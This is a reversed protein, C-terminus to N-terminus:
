GLRAELLKMGAMLVTLEDATREIAEQRAMEDTVGKRSRAVQFEQAFRVRAQRVSEAAELYATEVPGLKPFDVIM